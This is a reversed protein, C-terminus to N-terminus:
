RLIYMYGQTVGLYMLLAGERGSVKNIVRQSRAHKGRPRRRMTVDECEM